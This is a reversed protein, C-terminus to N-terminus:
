VEEPELWNALDRLAALAGSRIISPDRAAFGDILRNIETLIRLREAEKAGAAATLVVM